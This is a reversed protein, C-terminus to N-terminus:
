PCIGARPWVACQCTPTNNACFCAYECCGTLSLGPDPTGAESGSGSAARQENMSETEGPIEHNESWTNHEEAIWSLEASSVSVLDMERVELTLADGAENWNFQLPTDIVRTVSPAGRQGKVVGTLKVMPKDLKGVSIRDISFRVNFGGGVVEISPEIACPPIPCTPETGNYSTYTSKASGPSEVQMSFAQSDFPLVSCTVTTRQEADISPSPEDADLVAPMDHNDVTSPDAYTTAVECGGLLSALSAICVSASLFGRIQHSKKTSGDIGWQGRFM